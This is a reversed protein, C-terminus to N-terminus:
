NQLALNALEMMFRLVMPKVPCQPAELAAQVRLGDKEAAKCAGPSVKRQKLAEPRGEPHVHALPTMEVERQDLLVCSSNWQRM